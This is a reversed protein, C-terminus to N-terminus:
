PREAVFDLNTVNDEATIVASVNAFIHRRSIVTLIYTEGAPLGHFEYFGLTSTRTFASNGNLDFLSVAVGGIGRHEATRVRGSISIPAATPQLDAAFFGSYILFPSAFSPGGAIPQAIAGGLQFPGGSAAGGGSGIVSKEILYPGGSQGSATPPIMALAVVSVLVILLTRLVACVSYYKTRM